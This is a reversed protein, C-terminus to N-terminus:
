PFHYKGRVSCRHADKLNKLGLYARALYLWGHISQSEVALGTHACNCSVTQMTQTHFIGRITMLVELKEM